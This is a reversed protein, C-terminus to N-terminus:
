FRKSAAAFFPDQRQPATSALGGGGTVGSLATDLAAKAPGQPILDKELEAQFADLRMQIKTAEERLAEDGPSPGQWQKMPDYLVDTIQKLRSMLPAQAQTLRQARIERDYAAGGGGSNQAQIRYSANRDRELAQQIKANQDAFDMQMMQMGYANNDRSQQAAQSADFQSQQQMMAGQRNQDDVGWQNNRDRRAKEALEQELTFRRTSEAVAEDQRKGAMHNQVTGGLASLGQGLGSLFGGAM